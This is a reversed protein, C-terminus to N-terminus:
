SEVASSGANDSPIMALVSQVIIPRVEALTDGAELARFGVGLQAM